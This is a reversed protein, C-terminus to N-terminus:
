RRGSSTDIGITGNGIPTVYIFGTQPIIKNIHQDVWQNVQAIETQPVYIIDKPELPFPQLEGGKVFPEMNLSYGYRQGDKHRIIIINRLEADRLDFGGAQIIAELATLEGPMEVIGPKMVQGGVYVRHNYLSRVIVVVNPDRLHPVYLKTLKDRLEAPTLERTDVEGVLQLAIKGDPRVTQVENLQPTYFFKVEVVDGAKLAVRPMAAPPAGSASPYYYTQPKCSVMSLTLFGMILPLWPKQIQPESLTKM